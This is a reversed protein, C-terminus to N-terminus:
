RDAVGSLARCSGHSRRGCANAVGPGLVSKGGAAGPRMAISWRAFNVVGDAESGKPMM